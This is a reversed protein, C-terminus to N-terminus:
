NSHSKQKQIPCVIRSCMMREREWHNSYCVSLKTSCERQPDEFCRVASGVSSEMRFFFSFDIKKKKDYLSSGVHCKCINHSNSVWLLKCNEKQEKYLLCFLCLVQVEWWNKMLDRGQFWWPQPFSKNLKHVFNGMSLFAYCLWIRHMTKWFGM